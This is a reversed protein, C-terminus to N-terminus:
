AQGIDVLAFRVEPLPDTDTALLWTSSNSSGSGLDELTRALRVCEARILSVSVAERSEPDITEYATEALLDGLADTVRAYHAGTLKNAEALRRTCRLLCNLGTERRTEVGSVTQEVLQEPLAPAASAELRIWAEIAATAGAVDDFTPGILGRRISQVIKAAAVDGAGVFYPLAARARKVSATVILDLLAQTRAQTRDEARMAPAIALPLGDGAWHRIQDHFGGLLSESWPDAAALSSPRWATIRDFIRVAQEPTPLLNDRAAGILSRMYNVFGAGAESSVVSLKLFETPNPEFLRARVAAIADVSEPSPLAAFINISLGTRAPLSVAANDTESWLARGFAEQEDATLVNHKALYALRLVAEERSPRGLLAAQILQEIRTAWRGDDAPRDPRVIWFSQIPNPWWQTNANAESSLPFELFPLVVQTRRSPPVGQASL